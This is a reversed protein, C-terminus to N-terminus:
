EDESTSTPEPTVMASQNASLPLASGDMPVPAPEPSPSHIPSLTNDKVVRVEVIGTHGAFVDMVKLLSGDKKTNVKMVEEETEKGKILFKIGAPVKYKDQLQSILEAIRTTPTVAFESTTRGQDLLNFIIASPFVNSLTLNSASSSSPLRSTMGGNVIGHRGVPSHIGPTYHEDVPCGLSVASTESFLGLMSVGLFYKYKNM